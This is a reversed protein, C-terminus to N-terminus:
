ASAPAPRRNRVTTLRRHYHNDTECAHARGRPASLTLHCAPKRAHAEAPLGGVDVRLGHCIPATEPPRGRDQRTSWAATQTSPRVPGPLWPSTRIQAERRATERRAASHSCPTPGMPRTHRFRMKIDVPSAARVSANPRRRARRTARARRVHDGMTRDRSRPARTRTGGEGQGHRDPEAVRILSATRSDPWRSGFPSHSDWRCATDVAHRQFQAGLQSRGPPTALLTPVLTPARGM